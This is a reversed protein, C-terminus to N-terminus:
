PAARTSLQAHSFVPVVLAARGPPDAQSIAGIKAVAVELFNTM